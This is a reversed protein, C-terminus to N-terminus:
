KSNLKDTITERLQHLFNESFFERGIAEQLLELLSGENMMPAYQGYKEKGKTTIWYPFWFEYEDDPCRGEWRIQVLTPKFIVEGLEKNYGTGPDKLQVVKEVTFEGWYKAKKRQGEKIM